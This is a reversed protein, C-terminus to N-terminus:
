LHKKILKASWVFCVAVPLWILIDPRLSYRSNISLMLIVVLYYSLSVALSIAMGVSNEKRQSKIGLPIGLLIFCISAFSFVFRKSFEVRIKSLYKKLVKLEKERDQSNEIKAIKEKVSDITSLMECTRFDKERRNYSRSKIANKITHRFRHAQAMSPHEVDVPDVTMEYLDLNIDTGESTVLAKSAKIMRVVRSDSYDFVVLDHLWNGERSEFYIKLKPFDDIFRGPELLDLGTEVSVKQKLSRRVEHGRPVIENNVLIGLFTCFVGFFIPWRVVGWLNLGCSRMAAMESDSSLRSFVLVSSVLLALPMTWQLTEPFSVLAFEGILSAPAGDLIFGVIQIMLGITM